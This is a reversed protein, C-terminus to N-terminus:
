PAREFFAVETAGYKKARTRQWHPSERLSKGPIKELIFVAGPAAVNALSASELLESAYDRDGRQKAYPPDAFILDFLQSGGQRQLFRFADMPVVVGDLRTRTLNARICKIAAPDNDVFTANTCGRSLAEIGLAGSGAFLDLVRADIVREGLSSFIAAKVRDM